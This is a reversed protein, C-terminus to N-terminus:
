PGLAARSRRPVAMASNSDATLSELNAIVAPMEIPFRFTRWAPVFQDGLPEPWLRIEGAGDGRERRAIRLLDHEVLGELALERDPRQRLRHRPLVQAALRVRRGGSQLIEADEEREADVFAAREAQEPDPFVAFPLDRGVLREILLELM